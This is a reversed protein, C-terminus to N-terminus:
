ACVRRFLEGSFQDEPLADSGPEGWYRITCIHRDAHHELLCLVEAWEADSELDRGSEEFSQPLMEMLVFQEDGFLAGGRYAPVLGQAEFAIPERRLSWTAYEHRATM